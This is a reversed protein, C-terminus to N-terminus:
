VTRDIEFLMDDVESPTWAALTDPSIYSKDWWYTSAITIPRDDGPDWDVGNPSVRMLVQCDGGDTKVLRGIPMVARVSIVDPPLNTMTFVTPAPLTNDASIYDSDVPGSDGEDVLDFGTSGTSPTWGLSDDGDPIIDHVAVAGQFDNIYSGTGDWFVVDKYYVERGNVQTSEAAQGITGNAIDTAGLALGSLNVKLIGNVKIQITGASAHRVIKTEVHNYANAIVSNPDSTYLLTGAANYVLFQGSAGVEMYAVYTNALTRFAWHANGKNTDGIPFQNLWLRFAVGATSVAAPFTLRSFILSWSGTSSSQNFRLVRGNAGITPDPDNVITTFNGAFAGEHAAWIGNLMYDRNSGYLGKQGSPFDAWILM